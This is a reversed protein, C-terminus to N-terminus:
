ALAVSARLNLISRALSSPALMSTKPNDALVHGFVNFEFRGFAGEAQIWHSNGTAAPDAVLRVMTADFGAGALAVAAAVNANQPFALCADRASGEFFGAPGTLADLDVRAEAPTNRWASPPKRGVYAVRALGALRAAALIDLAGLAGSPVLVRANGAEAALRLASEVDTAALAGVSAVLLDTGSALIRPGHAVLAAHGACEVVIRPRAALLGDVADVVAADPPLGDRGSADPRSRVLVSVFRAASAHQALTRALARGIAGFGILGVDIV